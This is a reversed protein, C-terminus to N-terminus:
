QEPVFVWTWGTSWAANPVHLVMKDATFEVIDFVGGNGGGEMSGLLNAAGEITIKSYDGNFKFTSGTVPAGAADAYYTYNPGGDLDFVMKGAADAPPCCDGGANWWIGWPNTPDSMFWWLRGDPTPGGDFVWTKGALDEGVLDYYAQPLPEDLQTIEVSVTKSVYETESPDNNPMYPTTAYYTFEHTGTFPFVVEVRDTYKKDLIYDWYGTVGETNMQISLKNGGNTAQVVALDINSPDFSNKLVDRDEIPECASFVLLIAMTILGLIKSIKM